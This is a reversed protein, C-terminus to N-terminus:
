RSLLANLLNDQFNINSPIQAHEACLFFSFAIPFGDQSGGQVTPDLSQRGLLSGKGVLGDGPERLLEDYRPGPQPHRIQQPEYRPVMRGGDEEVLVRSPTLTCDAGFVILRTASAPQRQRLAKQLRGARKLHKAFYRQLLEARQAGVRAILRPDFVSWQLERWTDVDFINREPSTADQFSTRLPRSDIGVLPKRDPNPLLQYTSPLTALVEPKIRQVIKEGEIFVQVTHTSGLSPTGLLVLRNIRSAGAMTAKPDDRDLVDETGFNLLYRSVIGGMSHAVIDVKLDPRSYDQRLQDIFAALRRATDVNDLRWDYPFVYLHREYPDAIRTGAQTLQYGGYRVMTDVISQYFNHGAVTNTIDFAEINGAGAALTTPDVELTLEDYHSFILRWLSGPWVVKHTTRDRLKSGMIGPILILPPQESAVNAAQYLRRLDPRLSVCATLAAVAAVALFLRHPAGLPARVPRSARRSRAISRWSM